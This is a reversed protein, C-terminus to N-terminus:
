LPCSSSSREGVRGLNRSLGFGSVDSNAVFAGVTDRPLEKPWRHIQAYGFGHFKV